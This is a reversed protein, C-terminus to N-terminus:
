CCLLSLIVGVEGGGRERGWGRRLMLMLFISNASSQEDLDELSLKYYEELVVESRLCDTRTRSQFTAFM